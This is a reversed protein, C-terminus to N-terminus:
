HSAATGDHHHMRTVQLDAVGVVFTVAGVIWATWAMPRTSSFGMVWPAVIFAVGILATLGELPILDPRVLEAIATLTAIAGLVIMTTTARTTTTTWIPSLMAYIGAVLPVADQPHTWRNM